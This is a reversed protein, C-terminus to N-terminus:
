IVVDNQLVLIPGSFNIYALIFFALKHLALAIMSTKICGSNLDSYFNTVSQSFSFFYTNMFSFCM